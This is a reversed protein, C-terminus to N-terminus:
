PRDQGAAPSSPSPAPLPRPEPLLLGLGAALVLVLAGGVPAALRQRRPVREQMERPRLPRPQPLDLPLQLRADLRLQDLVRVLDALEADDLVVELPPTGPQSSRLLLSHGGAPRPGIEVPSDEQGFRREVGSLLHRAYPLVVEMLAILHEKRGELEPRGMWRLSWGTIIGLADGSQGASVDPLGDVQLRCSLQEYRLTQKM